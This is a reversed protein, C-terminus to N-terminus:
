LILLLLRKLYNVDHENLVFHRVYYSNIANNLYGDRGAVETLAQRNNSQEESDNNESIQEFCGIM